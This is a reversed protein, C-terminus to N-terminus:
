KLTKAWADVQKQVEAIVKDIGASKLGDQCKKLGTEVDVLGKDVPDCYQTAASSVNAIDSQINTTDLLFGAMNSVKATKKVAAIKDALGIDDPSTLYQLRQDGTGFGGKFPWGSTKADVGTPYTVVKNTQDQWAWNKGQIGYSVLNLYDANKNVEEIYKAALDPHKSTKCIGYTNGSSYLDQYFTDQVFGTLIPIAKWENNAMASTSSFGGFPVYFAAFGLNGRVNIMEADAPPTKLYYGKQYWKRNLEVAAKYEPTDAVSVVKRTPDDMKVGISGGFDGKAGINTTIPDYGHQNPWWARGWFPDSSILPTVGKEGKMVADFFPEWAEPTKANQWDFKYKDVLDKRVWMAAAGKVGGIAFSLAGYIHGDKQRTSDWAQKSFNGLETPAYKALLDDLPIIGGADIASQIPAFGGFLVLDCPEGSNMMLNVKTAGDTFGLQHFAVKAGIDKALIANAAATVAALDDDKVTFSVSYIDLTPLDAPPAVTPAKTAAPASTAVPASTAAPANTAAPPQTAATTATAAPQCATLFMSLIVLLGMVKFLTSTKLM